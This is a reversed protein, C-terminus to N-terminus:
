AFLRKWWRARIPGSTRAPQRAKGFRSLYRECLPVTGESYSAGMSRALETDAHSGIWAVLLIRRLMVFTEIDAEAIPDLVGVRRYGRVWAKILEPV